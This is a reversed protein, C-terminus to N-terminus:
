AEIIQIEATRLLGKEVAKVLEEETKYWDTEKWLVVYRDKGDIVEMRKILYWGKVKKVHTIVKPITL